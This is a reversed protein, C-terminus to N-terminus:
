AALHAAIYPPLWPVQYETQFLSIASDNVSFWGDVKTRGSYFFIAAIGVRTAFALLDHPVLRTLGDALRNWAGRLSGTDVHADTYSSLAAPM